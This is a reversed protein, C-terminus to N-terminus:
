GANFRRCATGCPPLNSDCPSPGAKEAAPRAPVSLHRELNHGSCEPCEAEEGTFVLAEFEHRCEKCEYEYLPM